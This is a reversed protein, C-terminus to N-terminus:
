IPSLIERSLEGDGNKKVNVVQCARVVVCTTLAGPL